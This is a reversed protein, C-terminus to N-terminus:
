SFSPPALLPPILKGDLPAAVGPKGVAAGTVFEQPVCGRPLPLWNPLADVAVAVGLLKPLLVPKPAPAASTTVPNPPFGAGTIGGNGSLYFPFIFHFM